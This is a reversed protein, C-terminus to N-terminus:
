RCKLFYNAIDFNDGTLIGGEELLRLTADEPTEACFDSLFASATVAVSFSCATLMLMVVGVATTLHLLKWNKSVVALIGCTCALLVFAQISYVYLVVRFRYKHKLEDKKDFGISDPGANFQASKVEAVFSEM